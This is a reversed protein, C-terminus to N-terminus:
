GNVRSARAIRSRLANDAQLAAVRAERANTIGPFHFHMDGFSDGRLSNSNAATRASVGPTKPIIVGTEGRSVMAVPTNNVSLVNKDRGGRGGIEFSGGTAFHTLSGGGTFSSIIGGGLDGGFGGTPSGTAAGIINMALKMLQMRILEAIIQKIANLAVDRMNDFGETLAMISNIAGDIGQVQLREMAENMEDATQPVGEFYQEMPGATGRRTSEQARAQLGPLANMEDQIRGAEATKGALLAAARAEELRARRIEFMIDLLELEIRRREAATRALSRDGELLEQRIGLGSELQRLQEANKTLIRKQQIAQERQAFLINQEELFAKAQADDREGRRVSEKVEAELRRRQEALIELEIKATEDATDSQALRGQLIDQNLGFMDRTHAAANRALKEAERAAEEEARKRAEEARISTSAEDTAFQGKRPDVPRGNVRTEQHVHPGRSNGSGPAGRAGGSLGVQQGQGVADGKRVLIQSLHALRTITGRGHDIFVVNGYGPLNGTEVVVGGAPAVVRSGVPVAIDIGAHARNGRNENFSGTIRGGSVPSVFSTMDGDPGKGRRSEQAAKIAADRRTTEQTLRREFEIQSIAGKEREQRLKGLAETYRDTAAKVADLQGAVRREGIVVEAGRVNQEAAQVGRDIEALQQQLRAITASLVQVRNQGPSTGGPTVAGTVRGRVRSLEEQAEGLERALQQRRAGLATLEGRAARLSQQEAQIDTQLSKQQEERRKRIADTLGEITRKWAEDAAKNNAAQVAQERMKNVLDDIANAQRFIKDAFSAALIGAGTLVAGWPGGLFGLFGGAGGRMLSLAQIVQGSQQAFITMPRTGMAFQQAVDGIQFSLQQAGARMQGLSVTAQRGRERQRTFSQGMRESAADVRGLATDMQTAGRQVEAALQNLNRQALSISADVQLLLQRTDSAAAAM